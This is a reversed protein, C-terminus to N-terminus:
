LIIAIDDSPMAKTPKKAQPWWMNVVPWDDAVAPMKAYGWRDYPHFLMLDAEIDLAQLDLIRKELHAFFKPNFRTLDNEGGTNREFPYYEPENQNFAYSKPFVCM